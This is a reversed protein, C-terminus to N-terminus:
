RVSRGEVTQHRDTLQKFAADFELKGQQVYREVQRTSCNHLQAVEKVKIGQMLRLILCSRNVESVKELAIWVLQGTNKQELYDEQQELYDEPLAEPDLVVLFDRLPSADPNDVVDLSLHQHRKRLNDIARNHAIRLMWGKLSSRNHVDTKWKQWVTILTEQTIDEADYHNGMFRLYCYVLKYLEDFAAGGTSFAHEVLEEFSKEPAVTYSREGNGLFFPIQTFHM